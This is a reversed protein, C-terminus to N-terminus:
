CECYASYARRLAPREVVVNEREGNREEHIGHCISAWQPSRPPFLLAPGGEPPAPRKVVPVLSSYSEFGVAFADFFFKIKIQFIFIIELMFVQTFFTFLLTTEPTHCLLHM